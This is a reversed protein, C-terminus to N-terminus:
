DYEVTQFYRFDDGARAALEFTVDGFSLDLTQKMAIFDEDLQIFRATDFPDVSTVLELFALDRGQLRHSRDTVFGFTAYSEYYLGYTPVPRFPGSTLNEFCSGVLSEFLVREINEWPDYVLPGRWAIGNREAVPVLALLGMRFTAMLEAVAVTSGM